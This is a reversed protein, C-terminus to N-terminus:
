DDADGPEPTEPSVSLTDDPAALAMFRVPRSGAPRQSPDTVRPRFAALIDWFQHELQAIEEATLWSVSQMAIPSDAWGAPQPQAMAHRILRTEREIFVETLARSAAEFAADPGTDSWQMGSATRRWPRQRGKADPVEELFGYKALQRLHWSCNAPSEGVLEAAQTATLPGHVGVAELLDLRVPHALAKLAHADEITTITTPDSPM